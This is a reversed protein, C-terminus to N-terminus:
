NAIGRLRNTKKARSSALSGIKSSGKSYGSRSTQDSVMSTAHSQADWDDLDQERDLEIVVHEDHKNNDYDNLVEDQSKIRM